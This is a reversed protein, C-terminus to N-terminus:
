TQEENVSAEDRKSRRHSHFNSFRATQRYRTINKNATDNSTKSVCHMYVGRKESQTRTRRHASYRYKGWETRQLPSSHSRLINKKIRMKVKKMMAREKETIRERYKDLTQKTRFNRAVYVYVVLNLRFILYAAFLISNELRILHNARNKYASGIETYSNIKTNRRASKQNSKQKVHYRCQCCCQHRADTATSVDVTFANGVLKM